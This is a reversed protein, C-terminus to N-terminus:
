WLDLPPEAQGALIRTVHKDMMCEACFAMELSAFSMITADEELPKKCNTCKGDSM